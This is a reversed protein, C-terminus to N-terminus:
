RQPVYLVYDARYQMQVRKGLKTSDCGNAPAQGDATNLRLSRGGKAMGIM